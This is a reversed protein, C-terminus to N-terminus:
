DASHKHRDAAERWRAPWNEKPTMDLFEACAQVIASPADDRGAPPAFWRDVQARDKELADAVIRRWNRGLIREFTEAVFERRQQREDTAM